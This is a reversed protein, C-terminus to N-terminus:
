ILVKGARWDANELERAGCDRVFASSRRSRFNLIGVARGAGGTRIAFRAGFDPLMEVFKLRIQDSPCCLRTKLKLRSEPM